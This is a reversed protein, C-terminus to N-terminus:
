KAILKRKSHELYQKWDAATVLFMLFKYGIYVAAVTQILSADRFVAAMTDGLLLEKTERDVRGLTVGWRYVFYIGIANFALSFFAMFTELAFKNKGSLWFLKSSPPAHTLSSSGPTTTKDKDHKMTQRINLM